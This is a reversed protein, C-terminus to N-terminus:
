QLVAPNNGRVTDITTTSGVTGNGANTLLVAGAFRVNGGSGPRGTQVPNAFNSPVGAIANIDASDLNITSGTSTLTINAADGADGTGGFTSTGGDATISGGVTLTGTATDITVLGADSGDNNANTAGTTILAGAINVTGNGTSNIDIAGSAVSSNM